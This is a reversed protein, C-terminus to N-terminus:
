YYLNKVFFRKSGIESILKSNKFSREIVEKKEDKIYYFSSEIKKLDVNKLAEQLEMSLPSFFFKVKELDVSKLAEQLEMSLPSNFNLSNEYDKLIEQFALGRTQLKKKNNFKIM